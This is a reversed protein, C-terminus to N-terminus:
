NNCEFRKYNELLKIINERGPGNDSQSYFKPLKINNDICFDILYKACDYGTKEGEPNDIDALDHDFCVLDPKGINNLSSVFEDYSRCWVINYITSSDFKIYKKPDRIDDVWIVTKNMIEKRGYFSINWSM